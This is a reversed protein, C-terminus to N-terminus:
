SDGRLLRKWHQPMGNWDSASEWLNAFLQWDANPDFRNKPNAIEFWRMAERLLTGDEVIYSSYFKVSVVRGTNRLFREGADAVNKRGAETDIWENPIKAFVIGPRDAPLNRRRADELTDKITRESFQTSELKCKTDACVATGNPFTILLDFDEGKKNKKENFRFQARHCILARAIDLEAYTSEIQKASEFQSICEGYGPIWQSNWLMEALQIVRLAHIAAEQDTNHNNLLFTPTTSRCVFENVWDIGFIGALVYRATHYAKISDADGPVRRFINNVWAQCIIGPGQLAM